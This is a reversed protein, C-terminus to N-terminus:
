IFMDIGRKKKVDFKEELVSSKLIHYSLPFFGHYEKVIMNECEIRNKTLLIGVCSSGRYENSLLEDTVEETERVYHYIVDFVVYRNLGGRIYKGYENSVKKLHRMRDEEKEEEEEENEEVGEKIWGGDKVANIWRNYFFFYEGNLRPYAGRNTARPIGFVANFEVKKIEGGSYVVDPVSYTKVHNNNDNDNDNYHLLGIDPMTKFLATVSEEIEVSCIERTNIIESTTAFWCPSDRTYNLGYIDVKSIDLLVYSNMGYQVVGNYVIDTMVDNIICYMSLLMEAVRERCLEELDVGALGDLSMFPLILCEEEVLQPCNPIKELM